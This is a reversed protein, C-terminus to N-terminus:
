CWLYIRERSRGLPIASCGRSQLLSGNDLAENGSAVVCLKDDSLGFIDGELFAYVTDVPNGVDVAYGVGNEDGDVDICGAVTRLPHVGAAPASVGEGAVRFGVVDGAEEVDGGLIVEGAVLEAHVIGVAVRINLRREIQQLMRKARRNQGLIQEHVVLLITPEQQRGCSALGNDVQMDVADDGIEIFFFGLWEFLM